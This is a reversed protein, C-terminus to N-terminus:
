PTPIDDTRLLAVTSLLHIGLRDLRITCPPSASGSACQPDRQAAASLGATGDLGWPSDEQGHGLRGLAANYGM